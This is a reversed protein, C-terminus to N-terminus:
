TIGFPGFGGMGGNFMRRFLEEPSLEEEFMSSDRRGSNTRGFGNGFPSSAGSGAGFRSDPDGGFRDYKEKKEADSLVQFARSVVIARSTLV